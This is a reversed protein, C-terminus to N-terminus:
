AVQNVGPATYLHHYKLLLLGSTFALQSPPRCCCAKFPWEGEIGMGGRWGARFMGLASRLFYAPTPSIRNDSYTLANVNSLNHMHFTECAPAIRLIFCRVHLLQYDM